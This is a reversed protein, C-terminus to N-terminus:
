SYNQSEQLPIFEGCGRKSTGEGSDREDPHKSPLIVAGRQM